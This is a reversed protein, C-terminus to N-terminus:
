SMKRNKLLFIMRWKKQLGHDIEAYFVFICEDRSVKKPQQSEQIEKLFCYELMPGVKGKSVDQM